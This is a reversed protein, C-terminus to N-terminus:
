VFGCIADNDGDLGGLGHDMLPRGAGGRDHPGHRLTKRETIAGEIRTHPDEREMVPRVPASTDSLHPADDCPPDDEEGSIWVCLTGEPEYVVVERRDTCELYPPRRPDLVDQTFQPSALCPHYWDRVVAGIAKSAGEPTPRRRVEVRVDPGPHRGELQDASRVQFPSETAEIAIEHTPAPCLAEPVQNFSVLQIKPIPQDHARWRPSSDANSSVVANSVNENGLWSRRTVRLTRVNLLATRTAITSGALEMKMSVVVLLDAHMPGHRTAADVLALRDQLGRAALNELFGAPSVDFEAWWYPDPLVVERSGSFRDSLELDHQQRATRMSSRLAIETRRM